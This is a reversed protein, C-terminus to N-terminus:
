IFRKVIISNNQWLRWLLIRQAPVGCFQWVLSLDEGDGGM